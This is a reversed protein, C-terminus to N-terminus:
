RIVFNIEVICDINPGHHLAHSAEYGKFSHYFIM